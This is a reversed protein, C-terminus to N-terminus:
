LMSFLRGLIAPVVHEVRLIRPGVNVEEFGQKKFLEIELPIFGGEPGIALTVPGNLQSRLLSEAQPHAVIARTNKVIAPVEDEVFPKFRRKIIIEPAVTDGAQELGLIVHERLVNDSLVPSEWYGKEVRWTEMIYIKKGGMATICEILRRLVKPRPMALLLTCSLPAPPVDACVVDMECSTENISAVTGTGLFGNFLGVRLADGPKAKHVDTMHKLRRGTLVVHGADTFDSEFLLILNM